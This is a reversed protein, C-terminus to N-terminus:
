FLLRKFLANKSGFEDASIEDDEKSQSSKVQRRRGTHGSKAM